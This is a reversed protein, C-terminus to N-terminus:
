ASGLAGAIANAAASCREISCCVGSHFAAYSAPRALARQAIDTDRRVPLVATQIVHFCFAFPAIIRDCARFPMGFIWEGMGQRRAPPRSKLRPAVM